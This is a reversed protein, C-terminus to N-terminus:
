QYQGYPDPYSYSQPHLPMPAGQPAAQGVPALPQGPQGPASATATAPTTHQPQQLPQQQQQQPPQQQQQGQGRAEAEAKRRTEEEKKRAKWEKRTEKFEEPTRKPGHNQMTVHANLHNLTGYAKECGQWGCKYIREIEEYRRRPRKQQAAGPLPVFSYVTNGTFEGMRGGRRMRNDGARAVGLAGMPPAAGVPIAHPPFANSVPPYWEARWAATAAGPPYGQYGALAVSPDTAYGNAPVRTHDAAAAYRPDAPYPRALYSPAQTYQRATAADTATDYPGAPAYHQRGAVAASGDQSEYPLSHAQTSTGTYSSFSTSQSDRSDMATTTTKTTDSQQRAASTASSRDFSHIGHSSSAAPFTSLM